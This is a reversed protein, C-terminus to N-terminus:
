LQLRSCVAAKRGYNWTGNRRRETRLDKPPMLVVFDMLAGARTRIQVTATEFFIDRQSSSDSNMPERHKPEGPRRTLRWSRGFLKRSRTPRPSAREDYIPSRTLPGAKTLFRIRNM